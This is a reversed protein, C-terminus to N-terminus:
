SDTDETVQWWAPPTRVGDTERIRDLVARARGPSRTDQPSAALGELAAMIEADGALLDEAGGQMCTVLTCDRFPEVKAWDEFLPDEWMTPVPGEPRPLASAIREAADALERFTEETWPTEDQVLRISGDIIMRRFVDATIPWRIQHEASRGRNAKAALEDLDGLDKMYTIRAYFPAVALQFRHAERAAPDAPFNLFADRLGERAWQDALAECGPTERLRLAAALKVFRWSWLPRIAPEAAPANHRTLVALAKNASEMEAVRRDEARHTVAIVLDSVDQGIGVFVTNCRQAVAWVGTTRLIDAWSREAEERAEQELEDRNAQIQAKARAVVDDAARRFAEADAPDLSSGLAREAHQLQRKAIERGVADPALVAALRDFDTALRKIPVELIPSTWEASWPDYAKISEGDFVVLIAVRIEPHIAYSRAQHLTREPDSDRAGKAEIVWLDRGLVTPIYDIRIRSRGEHLYPDTLAVSVERRIPNLTSRGYGLAQLVPFILEERIESENAGTWNTKALRDLPV